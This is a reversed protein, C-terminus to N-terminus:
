EKGIFERFNKKIMDLNSELSEKINNLNQNILEIKQDVSSEKIFEIEGKETIQVFIKNKVKKEKILGDKLLQAIQSKITESRGFKSKPYGDVKFEILKRLIELKSDM